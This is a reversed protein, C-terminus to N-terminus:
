LGQLTEAGIGAAGIGVGRIRERAGVGLIGIALGDIRAAGTVPVGLAVGNVVGNGGNGYPTWITANVGDVRELHRDRYNLRLGIVRPVEGIGLGIHNVTLDLGQAGAPVAALLSLAVAGSASRLYKMLTTM